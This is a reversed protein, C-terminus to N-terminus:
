NRHSAVISDGTLPTFAASLIRLGRAIDGFRPARDGIALKKVREEGRDETTHARQEAAARGVRCAMAFITSALLTAHAIKM